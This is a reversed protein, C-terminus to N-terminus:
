GEWLGARHGIKVDNWVMNQAVLSHCEITRTMNDNEVLGWSTTLVPNNGGAYWSIRRVFNVLHFSDAASASTKISGEWMCERRTNNM